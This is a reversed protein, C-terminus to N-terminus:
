GARLRKLTTDLAERTVLDLVELRARDSRLILRHHIGVRAMLVQRAMDKAQKVHRWAIADGAALGGITRMVEAAVTRPVDDLADIARREFAPVLIGRPAQVDDGELEIDSEREATRAAPAETEGGRGRAALQQRLETREHIGERVLGELREIKAALERMRAPDAGPTTASAQAPAERATALATRQAALEQELQEVRSSTQRLSARLLKAESALQEREPDDEDDEDEDEVLAAYVDWARDGAPLGLEIRTDEITEILMESDAPRTAHLCGRAVLIGLGPTARMLTHALDLEAIADDRRVADEAVAVLQDFADPEGTRLALELRPDRTVAPDTQRELHARAVDLAGADLAEAILEDRWEDPRDDGPRRVLEDLARAAHDWRRESCFRRYARVLPVGALRALDVRALDRLPLKDVDDPSMRDAATTVYADWSLGAIPSPAAEPKDACCRKYKLGSGCPCPDNRGARPGTRLTFGPVAASAEAPLREIIDEIGEHLAAELAALEQRGGPEDLVGLGECAARLNPDDIERAMGELLLAATVTVRRVALRRAHRVVDAVPAGGRWAAYVAIMETTTMTAVVPFRRGDLAALLAAAGEGRMLAVVDLALDPDHLGSVIAALLEVGVPEGRSARAFALGAAREADCASLAAAIADDSCRAADGSAATVMAKSVPGNAM